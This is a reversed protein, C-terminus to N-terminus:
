FQNSFEYEWPSYFPFELRKRFGTRKFQKTEKPGLSCILFSLLLEKMSLILCNSQWHWCLLTSIAIPTPPPILFPPAIPFAWSNVSPLCSRLKERRNLGTNIRNYKKGETHHSSESNNSQCYNCILNMLVTRAIYLHLFM